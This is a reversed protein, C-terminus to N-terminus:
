SELNAQNSMSREVFGYLTRLYTKHEAPENHFREAPPAVMSDQEQKASMMLFSQPRHGEVSLVREKGGSRIVAGYNHTVAHDVLLHAAGDATHM